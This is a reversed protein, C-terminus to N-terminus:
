LANLDADTSQLEAELDGLDTARLEMDLESTTDIDSLRTESEPAAAPKAWWMWGALVIALFVAVAVGAWMKSNSPNMNLNEM